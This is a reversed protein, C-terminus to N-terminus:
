APGDLLDVLSDHALARRSAVFICRLNAGDRAVALDNRWSFRFDPHDPPTRPGYVFPFGVRNLAMVVYAPSPRSGVRGLAQNHVRPEDALVSLPLAHDCVMTELLLLDDCVSAMSRLGGVPNALHYLLGYCFVVDFRGLPALPEMELDVRRADLGPYRQQLSTINEDRGDVCLVRCKREVFFQALHGVGSGVDLVSRGDLPLGLSGLHGMRAGNIELAAPIDFTELGGGTPIAEAVLDRRAVQVPYTMREDMAAPM